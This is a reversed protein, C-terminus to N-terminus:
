PWAVRVYTCQPIRIYAEPGRAAARAVLARTEPMAMARASAASLASLSGIRAWAVVKTSTLPAVARPFAFASM